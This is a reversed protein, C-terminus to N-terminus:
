KVLNKIFLYIRYLKNGVKDSKLYIKSTYFIKFIYKKYKSSIDMEIITNNENNAESRLKLFLDLYDKSMKTSNFPYSKIKEFYIDYNKIIKKLTNELNSLEFSLGYGSAFEPVGGSNIYLIPLGCQAAEIHHNGSPENLSGTIYLNHSKLEHALQLGSLPKLYKTNEFYFNSPLNGIFTFELRNKWFNNSMLKDLYKYVEFGKNWHDGWHHTVIKIKSKKDWSKIGDRNFITEDAGSMIVSSNTKYDDEYLLKLWNSVYVTHDAVLKNVEKYFNNLHNTNKREDCENIRHVVVADSNIFKKYKQIDNHNFTSNLSEKRPDIMLIIDLNNAKLDFHVEHGNDILFKSLNKVFFNGGGWPGNVVISGIAIRM